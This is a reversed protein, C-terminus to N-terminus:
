GEKFAKDLWEEVYGTLTQGLQQAALEMDSSMTHFFSRPAINGRAGWTAKSGRGRPGFTKATRVDTGNELFRLIFSRDPGYYENIDKTRNSVYRPKIKGPEYLRKRSSIRGRNGGININGAFEGKYMRRLVASSASGAHATSSAKQVAKARMIGLVKGLEIRVIEAFWIDFQARNYHGSKVFAINSQVKDNLQLRRIVGDVAKELNNLGSFDARLADIQANIRSLGAFGAYQGEAMIVSKNYPM